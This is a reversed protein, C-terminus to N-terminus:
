HHVRIQLGIVLRTTMHAAQTASAKMQTNDGKTIEAINTYYANLKEANTKTERTRELNKVM